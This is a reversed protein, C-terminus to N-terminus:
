NRARRSFYRDALGYGTRRPPEVHRNENPKAMIETFERFFLLKRLMPRLNSKATWSQRLTQTLAAFTM